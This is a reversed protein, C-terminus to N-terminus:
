NVSFQSDRLIMSMNRLAGKHQMGRFVIYNQKASLTFMINFAKLLAMCIKQSSLVDWM